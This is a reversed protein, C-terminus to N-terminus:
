TTSESPNGSYECPGRSSDDSHPLEDQGTRRSSSLRNMRGTLAMLRTSVDAPNTATDEECLGIIRKAVAEKMVGYNTTNRNKAPTPESNTTNNYSGRNNYHLDASKDLVVGFPLSKLWPAVIAEKVIKM